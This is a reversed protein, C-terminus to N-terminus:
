SWQRGHLAVTPILLAINRSGGYAEMAHVPVARKKNHKCQQRNKNNANNDTKTTNANNDRKTTKM